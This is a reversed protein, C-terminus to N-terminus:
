IEVSGGARAYTMALQQKSDCEAADGKLFAINGRLHHIQAPELSM